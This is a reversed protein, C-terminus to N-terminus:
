LGKRITREKIKAAKKSAVAFLAKEKKFIEKLPLQFYIKLFRFVDTKSLGIDMSSFYLGILDKDRWRQPVKDRM